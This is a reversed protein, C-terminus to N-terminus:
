DWTVTVTTGDAWLNRDVGTTPVDIVGNLAAKAFIAYGKITADGSGTTGNYRGGPGNIMDNHFLCRKISWGAGTLAANPDDLNVGVVGGSFQVKDVIGNNRNGMICAWSSGTGTSMKRSIGLYAQSAPTNWNLLSARAADQLAQTQIYNFGTAPVYSNGQDSGALPTGTGVWPSACTVITCNHWENGLATAVQSGDNHTQPDSNHGEWPTTPTRWWAQYGIWTDNRIIGFVSPTSGTGADSPGDIGGSIVCRNFVTNRGAFANLVRQGRCHLECDNFTVLTSTGNHNRVMSMISDGLVYDNGTMVFRCNNFTANASINVVTNVFNLNNYTGAGINTVGNTVTSAYNTRTVNNLNGVNKAGNFDEQPTYEPWTVGPVFLAGIAIDPRGRRQAVGGRVVYVGEAM